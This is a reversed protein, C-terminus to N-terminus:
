DTQSIEGALKIRWASILQYETLASILNPVNTRKGVKIGFNDLEEPSNIILFGAKDFLVCPYANIPAYFNGWNSYLAQKCNIGLEKSLDRGKSMNAFITWKLM